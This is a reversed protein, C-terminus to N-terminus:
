EGAPANRVINGSAIDINAVVPAVEPDAGGRCDERTHNERVLLRFIGGDQANEYFICQGHPNLQLSVTRTVRALPNASIDERWTEGAGSELWGKM